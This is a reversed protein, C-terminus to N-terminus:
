PTVGGATPVHQPLVLFWRGCLKGTEKFAVIKMQERTSWLQKRTFGHAAGRELVLTTPAPGNALVDTLITKLRAKQGVRGTQPSATGEIQPPRGRALRDFIDKAV